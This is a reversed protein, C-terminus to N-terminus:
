DGNGDGGEDDDDATDDGSSGGERDFGKGPNFWRDWNICIWRSYQKVKPPDSKLHAYRKLTEEFDGAVPFQWARLM